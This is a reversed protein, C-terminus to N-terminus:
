LVSKRQFKIEKRNHHTKASQIINKHGEKQHNLLFNNADDIRLKKNKMAM